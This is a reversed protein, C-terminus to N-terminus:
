PLRREVNKVREDVAKVREDIRMLLAGDSQQRELVASIRELTKTGERVVVELTTVRQNTTWAWSTFGMAPTLVLTAIAIWNAISFHMTVDQRQTSM